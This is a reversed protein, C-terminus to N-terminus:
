IGCIGQLTVWDGDSLVPSGLPANAMPDGDILPKTARGQPDLARAFPTSPIGAAKFRALLRADDVARRGQALLVKGYGALATDPLTGTTLLGFTNRLGAYRLLPVMPDAIEDALLEALIFGGVVNPDDQGEILTRSLLIANGPLRASGDIGEPLVVLEGRGPGLLRDRLRALAALGEPQNCPVQTLPVMDALILRGIEARRTEPVMQATHRIMAQPLWFVALGALLSFSAVRLALRLRGPRQRLGLLANEVQDLASIMDSDAIELTEPADAAPSYLAPLAGRNLRRVAPLSWHTLATDSKPDSIVLTADGLSVVTDRRQADPKERWLALCELRQYRTLATM